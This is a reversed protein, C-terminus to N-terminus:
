LIPIQKNEALCAIKLLLLLFQSLRFRILKDSLLSMDLRLSNNWKLSETLTNTYYMVSMMMM